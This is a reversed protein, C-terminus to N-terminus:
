GAEPALLPFADGLIEAVEAPTRCYGGGPWGTSTFGHQKVRLVRGEIPGSALEIEEVRWGGPAVLASM